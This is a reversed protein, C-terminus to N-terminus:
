PVRAVQLERCNIWWYVISYIVLPAQGLVTSALHQKGSRMVGQVIFHDNGTSIALMEDATNGILEPAIGVLM